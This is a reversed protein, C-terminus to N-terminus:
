RTPVPCREEAIQRWTLSLRNGFNRSLTSHLNQSMEVMPSSVVTKYRFAPCDIHGLIIPIRLEVAAFV